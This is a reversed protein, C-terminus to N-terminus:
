ITQDLVYNANQFFNFYNRIAKIVASFKCAMEIVMQYDGAISTFILKCICDLCEMWTKLNDKLLMGHPSSVIQIREM